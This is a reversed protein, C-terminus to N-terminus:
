AHGNKGAKSSRKKPASPAAAIGMFARVEDWSRASVAAGLWEALIDSENQKAIRDVIDAPLKAGFLRKLVITLASAQGEARGEVKGEARGEVKGEIRGEAKGRLEADRTWQKYLQSEVVPWEKLNESWIAVRNTLEAFTQLVVSLNRRESWHIFREVLEKWKKIIDPREGNRMLSVWYLMCPKVEGKDIQDLLPEADVDAMARSIVEFRLGVGGLGERAMVIEDGAGRGTLYVVGTFIDYPKDNGPRKLVRRFMHTYGLARNLFGPEPVTQIEISLALPANPQHLDILDAITDGVRHAADPDIQGRINTWQSYRAVLSLAPFFWDQFGQPDVNIAYQAAKDYPHHVGPDSNSPEGATKPQSKRRSM